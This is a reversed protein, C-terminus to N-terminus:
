RSKGFVQVWYSSNPGNQVYAIGIERFRPDLLNVCHGESNLWGQVAELPTQPNQSLNEGVRSYLYDVAQVRLVVDSNDLPNTHAFFGNAAMSVAQAMAAQDLKPNRKLPSSPTGGSRLPGCRLGKARALNSQNLVEAEFAPNTTYRGTRFDVKKSFSRGGSSIILEVQYRAAVPDTIRIEPALYSQGAIKWETKSIPGYVRSGTSTLRVTGDPSPLLVIQAAEKDALVELNARSQVQEGRPNKMTLLVTYVGPKFFTHSPNQEKSQTGDGFDWLYSLTGSNGSSSTQFRVLAPALLPTSAELRVRVEWVAMAMGGTLNGLLMGFFLMIRSIKLVNLGNLM